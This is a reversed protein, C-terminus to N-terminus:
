ALMQAIQTAEARLSRRLEAPSLVTVAAGWARTWHEIESLASVRYTFVRDGAEHDDAPHDDVLAYHQRERVWRVADRRVLVRVEIDDPSPAAPEYATPSRREFAGPLVLLDDVRTLRFERTGLRLRCWATLYWAGDWYTLREPEVDRDSTEQRSLSHYRLRVVRRSAIAEQLATVMHANLDFRGPMPVFDIARSVAEVQDGTRRGLLTLIKAAGSRAGTALGGAAQRELLRAGLMLASAEDVTFRVPPLFFGEMLEYGQGPLSVVPIGAETLAAVDRYVTRRSVGLERALDEGRLRRHAQLLVVLSFLRDVRNM